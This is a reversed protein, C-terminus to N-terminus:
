LQFVIRSEAVYARPELTFYIYVCLFRCVDATLPRLRDRRRDSYIRSSGLLDSDVRRNSPLTVDTHTHTNADSLSLMHNAPKALKQDIFIKDYFLQQFIPTLTNLM